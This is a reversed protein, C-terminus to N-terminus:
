LPQGLLDWVKNRVAIPTGIDSRRAFLAEQGRSAMEYARLMLLAEERAAQDPWRAIQGRTKGIRERINDILIYEDGEPLLQAHLDIGDFFSCDILTAQRFDNGHFENKVRPPQIVAAASPALRGSFKAEVIRGAFHCDVFEANFARWEKLNADDFSCREFRAYLPDVGALDAGDFRCDLYVTQRTNGLQGAKIRARRFDCQSFLSGSAIFMEFTVRRFEVETFRVGNFEVVTSAPAQFRGGSRDQDVVLKSPTPGGKSRVEIRM